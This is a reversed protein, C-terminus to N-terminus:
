LASKLKTVLAIAEDHTWIQKELQAERVAELLDRYAPGQPIGLWKLDDGTILPLPNLEEPPLSLKARCFDIEDCTGDLVRAVAECYGLLEDVRPATLIRQLKPWYQGRATRIVSEQQVLKTVGETEENSLKWARM